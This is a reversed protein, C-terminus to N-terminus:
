HLPSLLGSFNKGDEPDVAEEEKPIPKFRATLTTAATITLQNGSLAAAPSVSYADLIKGQKPANGLTLTTGYPYTGNKATIGDILLTGDAPDPSAVALPYSIAKWTAQISVNETITVVDGKLSGAPAM